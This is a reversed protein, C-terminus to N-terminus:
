LRHGFQDGRWVRGGPGVDQGGGLFDGHYPSDRQVGLFGDADFSVSLLDGPSADASYGFLQGRLPAISLGTMFTSYQAAALEGGTQKDIVRLQTGQAIFLLNGAALLELPPSVLTVALATPSSGDLAYRVVAQGSGVYLGEADVAFADPEQPLSIPALWAEAAMDYRRIEPPAALLFYAIGGSDASDIWNGASAGRSSVLTSLVAALLAAALPWPARHAM